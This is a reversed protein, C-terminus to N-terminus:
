TFLALPHGTLRWSGRSVLSRKGGGGGGEEVEFYDEVNSAEVGSKSDTDAVMIESIPKEELKIKKKDELGVNLM